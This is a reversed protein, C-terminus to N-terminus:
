FEYQLQVRDYWFTRSHGPNLGDKAAVADVVADEARNRISFGKLYAPAYTVDIYANNSRGFDETHYRAFALTLGFQKNFFKNAYKVKYAQGPGQEVMGRIMSSTDLQDTTYGVTYPSILAGDGVAGPHDEIAFWALTLTGVPSNMGVRGGYALNDVGNTAAVPSNNVKFGQLMSNSKWQRSFQDGVFPDFGTGTSLTYQSDNYIMNAFQEFNYYWLGLKFGHDEYKAGFAAAGQTDGSPTSVAKGGQMDDGNTTAPYYLNDQFYDSSTRSRWRWIRLAILDVNKVPTFDALVGQYTSPEVRTDNDGIWPTNINQDGAKVVLWPNKYQLFAQSLATFSNHTGGLTADLHPLSTGGNRDNLGLSHATVVGVGVSFGNLFSRTQIDLRGGVFFASESPTPTTPAAPHNAVDDYVRNFDYARINGSFTSQKLFETLENGTSAHAGFASALLASAVSYKMRPKM